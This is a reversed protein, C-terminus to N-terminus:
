SELYAKLDVLRQRWAAKAKEAEDADALKQHALSVMSKSPGKDAFDVVVRTSGDDWDFRAGRGPRSTRVRMTGDQLWRKRRAPKVFADFLVQVPVGVTKSATIEFGDPKQYKLRMGRAREYGVAVTQAWWGPVGRDETLFGAIESHKRAKAGWRDLIAFWQDWTKGTADKLKADSIREDAAALRTSAAKNRDRKESVHRRAATYSEGTKSMRARVRRKFSKNETM